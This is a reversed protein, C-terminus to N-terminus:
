ARRPRKRGLSARDESARPGPRKANRPLKGRFDSLQAIECVSGSAQCSDGTEAPYEFDDEHDSIQHCCADCRWYSYEVLENGGFEDEGEGYTMDAGCKPCKM